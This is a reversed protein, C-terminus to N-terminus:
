ERFHPPLKKVILAAVEPISLGTTNLQFDGAAKYMPRRTNMVEEIEELPDTGTLSPRINGSRQEKQMREKLVDPEADLWVLWGERKLNQVNEQNVVVGGGTAIVQNDRNSIMEILGKEVKRFHNWGKTSIIVEISEQADEEIWADMDIFVMGLNEALVKGIATKGSCRYGILVINM